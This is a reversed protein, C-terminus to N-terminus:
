SYKREEWRESKTRSCETLLLSMMFAAADTYISYLFNVATIVSWYPVPKSYSLWNWSILFRLDCKSREEIIGKAGEHVGGWPIITTPDLNFLSMKQLVLGGGAAAAPGSCRIASRVNEM